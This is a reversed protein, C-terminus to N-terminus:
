SIRERIIKAVAEVSGDFDLNTTDVLVSDEAPRLPAAKRNTDNYDRKIVDRLVDKVTTKEGKEVLEKYRREARSEPSATLFIKVQADPLVVTGIDRGDMIVNKTKAINRQLGLLYERVIPLASIDSATMSVEPTRILGTVDEGNLLVVQGSTESFDMEVSIEKLLAEVEAKSSPDVGKRLAALGVTRYLAGTDVYLLGLQKGVAKAVSSKGAGAPGDIAVAICM